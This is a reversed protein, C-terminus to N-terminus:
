LCGSGAGACDHCRACDHLRQPAPFRSAGVDVRAREALSHPVNRAASRFDPRASM